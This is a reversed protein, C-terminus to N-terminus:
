KELKSIKMAAVVEPVTGFDEGSSRYGSYSRLKYPAGGLLLRTCGSGSQADSAAQLLTRRLAVVALDSTGLHEDSRDVIPGPSETVVADQTRIGHIGTFSITRQHERDIGYNNNKNETPTTSGAIVRRHAVEGNKWLSLEDNGVPGDDRWTVCIVWCSVDDRPVWARFVRSHPDDSPAILTYFPAAYHNVRWLYRHGDDVTRRAGCAIGVTTEQVSYRPATDETFYSGILSDRAVEPADLRRHLFSVHAEDLEGEMAQVFNCDQEWRSAYRCEDPVDMWEFEPMAPADGQGLYAWAVGARLQVPYSTARIKEKMKSTCPESPMEVCQGTVDFKWGHYICRIGSDENRGFYLSARRHPCLEDFLAARGESDRFMILNEGLLRIREPPADSSPVESALAFPIWHQRVFKGMGTGPNTQTLLMNQEAKLM